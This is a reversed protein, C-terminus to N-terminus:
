ARQRIQEIAEQAAWRVYEDEDEQAISELDPLVRADAFRGLSGFMTPTLGQGPCARAPHLSASTLFLGARDNM